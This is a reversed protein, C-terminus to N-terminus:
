ARLDNLAALLQDVAATDGDERCYVVVRDADAQLGLWGAPPPSPLPMDRAWAEPQEVPQWNSLGEHWRWRGAVRLPATLPLAYQAVMGAGPRVGLWQPAARLVVQLGKARAYDRQRGLRQEHASPRLLMLNGAFIAVVLLLGWFLAGM